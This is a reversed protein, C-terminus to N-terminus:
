PRGVPPEKSPGFPREGACIREKGSPGAPLEVSVVTGGDSPNSTFRGKALRITDRMATLSLDMAASDSTITARLLGDDRELVIRAKTAGGHERADRITAQVARYALMEIAPSFRAGALHDDVEVALPPDGAGRQALDDVAAGLGSEALAPPRLDRTVARTEDVLMVLNGRLAQLEPSAGNRETLADIQWMAAILGQLTTDHLAAGLAQREQERAEVLRVAMRELEAALDTVLRENHQRTALMQNLGEALDALEAPGEVAARAGPVTEAQLVTASLGRLPRVFRRNVLLALVVAAALASALVLGLRLRESRAPGLARGERTAAWVQWGASPVSGAGWIRATGRSDPATAGDTTKPFPRGQENRDISSSLVQGAADVVAFQRQIQGGFIEVLTRALSGAALTEVLAGQVKGSPGAVPAAVVAVPAGSVVDHSDGTTVPQGATLRAFWQAGAYSKGEASRASSCLVRGDATLVHVAGDTPFLGMGSFSLRCLEPHAAVQVFLVQVNPASAGILAAAQSLDREVAAAVQRAADRSAVVARRRASRYADASLALGVLASVALAAASMGLLHARM